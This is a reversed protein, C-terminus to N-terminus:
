HPAEQQIRIAPLGTKWSAYAKARAVRIFDFEGWQSRTGWTHDFLVVEDFNPEEAGKYKPEYPITPDLVVLHGFSRNVVGTAMIHEITPMIIELAQECLEPTLGVFGVDDSM